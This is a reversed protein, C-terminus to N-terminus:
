VEKREEETANTRNTEEQERDEKQFIYKKQPRRRVECPYLGDFKNITSLISSYKEDRIM